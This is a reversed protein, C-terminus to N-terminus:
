CWVMEVESYLGECVKVFKEEVGYHRMNCWLGERWVTMHRALMWSPWTHKRRRGDVGVRIQVDEIGGQAEALIRVGGFRGM